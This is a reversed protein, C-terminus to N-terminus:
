GPRERYEVSEADPVRGWLAGGMQLLGVRVGEQTQYVRGDM